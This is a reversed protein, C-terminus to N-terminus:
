RASRLAALHPNTILEPDRALAEAEDWLASGVEVGEADARARVERRRTGCHRGSSPLQTGDLSCIRAFLREAHAEAGGAALGGVLAPEM